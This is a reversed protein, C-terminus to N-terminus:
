ITRVLRVRSVRPRPDRPGCADAAICPARFPPLRVYGGERDARQARDQREPLANEGVKRVGPLRFTATVTTWRLGKILKKILPNRREVRIHCFSKAPPEWM